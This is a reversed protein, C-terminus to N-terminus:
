YYIADHGVFPRGYKRLSLDNKEEDSMMITDMGEWYSSHPIGAETCLQLGSHQVVNEICLGQLVVVRGTYFDALPVPKKRVKRNTSRVYLTYRDDDRVAYLEIRPLLDQQFTAIICRRYFILLRLPSYTSWPSERTFSLGKMVAAIRDSFPRTGPLM